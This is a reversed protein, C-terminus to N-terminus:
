SGPVRGADDGLHEAVRAIAGAELKLHADKLERQLVASTQEAAPGVVLADSKCAKDLAAPIRGGGAVLVLHVGDLPDEIWQALWRAQEATLGGIDRVVVVRCATMFPPSSLATTIAAFAPLEISGDVDDDGDGTHQETDSARRRSPITHDDLAFSREEEGLLEDILRQAERDRLVPDSGQVLYTTM